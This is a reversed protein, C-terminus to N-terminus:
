YKDYENAYCRKLTGSLREVEAELEAIRKNKAALIVDKGKDTIHRKVPAPALHRWIPIM